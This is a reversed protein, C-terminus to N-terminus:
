FFTNGPKIHSTARNFDKCFNAVNIGRKGLFPGLPPAATAMQAKVISKYLPNDIIKIVPKKRVRAGVKAAAGSAM